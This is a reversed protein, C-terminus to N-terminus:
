PMIDFTLSGAVEQLIRVQRLMARLPAVFPEHRLVRICPVLMLHSNCTASRRRRVVKNKEALPSDHM